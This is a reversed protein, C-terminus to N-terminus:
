HTHLPTDSVVVYAYAHMVAPELCHLIFFTAMPLLCLDFIGSKLRIPKVPVPLAAGTFSPLQYWITFGMHDVLSNALPPPDIFEMPDALVAPAFIGIVFLGLLVLICVLILVLIFSIIFAIAWGLLLFVHSELWPFVGWWLFYITLFGSGWWSCHGSFILAHM